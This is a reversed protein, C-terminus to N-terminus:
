GPARRHRCRSWRPAPPDHPRPPPFPGRSIKSNKAIFSQQMVGETVAEGHWSGRPPLRPTVTLSAPPLNRCDRKNRRSAERSGTLIDRNAALLELALVGLLPTRFLLMLVALAAGTELDFISEM